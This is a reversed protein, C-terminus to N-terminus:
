TAIRDLNVDTMYIHVHSVMMSVLFFHSNIYVVIRKYASILLWSDIYFFFSFFFRQRNQMGNAKEKVEDLSAFLVSYFCSPRMLRVCRTSKVEAAYYHVCVSPFWPACLLFFIDDVVFFFFVKKSLHWILCVSVFCKWNKENAHKDM